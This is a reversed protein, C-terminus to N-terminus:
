HNIYFPATQSPTWSGGTSIIDSVLDLTACLEDASSAGGRSKYVVIYRATITATAWAPIVFAVSTRHNTTDAAFTMSTINQGGATYGTGSVENTVQNRKIHAKSPTYTSTCLMAKLTDTGNVIVGTAINFLFDDQLHSAM